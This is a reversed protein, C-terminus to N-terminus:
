LMLFYVSRLLKQPIQLKDIECLTTDLIVRNRHIDRIFYRWIHVAFLDVVSWFQRLEVTDLFFLTYHIVVTLCVTSCVILRDPCFFLFVIEFSNLIIKSM